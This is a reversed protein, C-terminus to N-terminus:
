RFTERTDPRELASCCASLCSARVHGRQAAPGTGSRRRQRVIDRRGTEAVCSRLPTRWKAVPVTAGFPTTRRVNRALERAASSACRTSM